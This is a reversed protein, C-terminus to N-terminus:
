LTGQILWCCGCVVRCVAAWAAGHVLPALEHTCGATAVCWLVACIGLAAFPVFACQVAFSPVVSRWSSGHQLLIQWLRWHQAPELVVSLLNAGHMSMKQLSAAVSLRYIM